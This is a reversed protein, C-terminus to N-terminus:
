NIEYNGNKGSKKSCYQLHNNTDQDYIFTKTNVYHYKKKDMKVPSNTVFSNPINNRYKKLM